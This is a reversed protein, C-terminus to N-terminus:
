RAIMWALLHGFAYAISGLSLLALSNLGAFWLAERRDLVAHGRDIVVGAALLAGALLAFAALAFLSSGRFGLWAPLIAWAATWTLGELGLLVADKRNEAEASRAPLRRLKM